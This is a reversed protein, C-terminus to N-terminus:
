LQSLALFSKPVWRVSVTRLDLKQLSIAATRTTESKSLQWKNGKGGLVLDIM